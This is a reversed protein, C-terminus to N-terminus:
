VVFCPAFDEEEDYEEEYEEEVVEEEYYYYYDDDEEMVISMEQPTQQQQQQQQQIPRTLRELAVEQRFLELDTEDYFLHTVQHSELKPIYVMRVQECFSVHCCSSTPSQPTTTGSDVSGQPNSPHKRKDPKHKRIAPATPTRFLSAPCHSTVAFENPLHPNPPYNTASSSSSSSSSPPVQQDLM